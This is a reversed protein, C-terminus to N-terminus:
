GLSVSESPYLWWFLMIFPNFTKDWLSWLGQSHPFFELERSKRTPLLLMGTLCMPFICAHNVYLIYSISTKIFSFSQVSWLFNSLVEHIVICSSVLFYHMVSIEFNLIYFFLFFESFLLSYSMGITLRSPWILWLVLQPVKLSPQRWWYLSERKRSVLFTVVLFNFTLILVVFWRFFFMILNLWHYRKM